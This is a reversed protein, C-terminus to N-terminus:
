GNKIGKRLEKKLKGTPCVELCKACSQCLRLNVIGSELPKQPCVRICIMCDTCGPKSSRPILNLPYNTRLGTLIIRPGFDPHVLLGFPSLNGLGAKEALIPFNLDPSLPDFPESEYGERRVLNTVRNLFTKARAFTFPDFTVSNWRHVFVMVDDVRGADDSEANIYDGVDFRPTYNKMVQYRIFQFPSEKLLLLAPMLTGFFKIKAADTSMPIFKIDPRPVPM